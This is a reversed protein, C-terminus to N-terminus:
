DLRVLYAPLDHQWLHRVVTIAAARELKVGHDYRVWQGSSSTYAIAPYPLDTEMMRRCTEVRDSDHFWGAQITYFAPGIVKPLSVIEIQVREVGTEYVGIERAAQVSLDLIRNPWFPGRDNIRVIVSRHSVFSTVRVRTGFPLVRHAATLEHYDFREGSATSHGQEEYGYFSAFGTQWLEGPRLRKGFEATAETESVLAPPPAAVATRVEPTGWTVGPPM